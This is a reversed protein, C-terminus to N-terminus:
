LKDMRAIMEDMTGMRDDPDDQLLDYVIAHLTGGFPDKKKSPVGASVDGTAMFWILKGLQFMDSRHDVLRRKDRAYALLEPSSFNAPGVFEDNRTFEDLPRGSVDEGTRKAIGFDIMMAGGGHPKRVFNDPKIDRHIFGSNHLHRVAVCMEMAVSKLETNALPGGKDIVVRFNDRGMSMGVWPVSITKGGPIVHQLAGDGFYESVNNSGGVDRLIRVENNFRDMRAGTMQRLFKVACPGAYRNTATYRTAEFVVGNGGKKVAGGLHFIVGNSATVKDPLNIHVPQKDKETFVDIFRLPGV